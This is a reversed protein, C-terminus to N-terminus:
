ERLVDEGAQTAKRPEMHSRRRLPASRRSGPCHERAPAAREDARDPSPGAVSEEGGKKELQPVAALLKDLGAPIQPSAKALTDSCSHPSRGRGRSVMPRPPLVDAPRRCSSFFPANPSPVARDDLTTLPRCGTITEQPLLACSRPITIGVKSRQSPHRRRTDRAPSTTTFQKELYNLINFLYLFSM